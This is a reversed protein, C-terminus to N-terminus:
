SYLALYIFSLFSLFSFSPFSTASFSLEVCIGPVYETNLVVSDSHVTVCTKTGPPLGCASLAPVQKVGESDLRAFNGPQFICMHAQLVDVKLAIDKSLVGKM